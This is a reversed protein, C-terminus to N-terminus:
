FIYVCSGLGVAIENRCSWDVLNLYYDDELNPADLVKYPLKSIVRQKTVPVMIEDEDLGFFPSRKEFVLKDKPMLNETYSDFKLPSYSDVSTQLSPKLENTISHSCSLGSDEEDFKGSAFLNIAGLTLIREALKTNEMVRNKQLPPQNRLVVSSPSNLNCANAQIQTADLSNLFLSNLNTLALRM